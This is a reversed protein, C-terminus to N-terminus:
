PSNIFERTKMNYKINPYIDLWTKYESAFTHESVNMRNILVGRKISGSTVVLNCFIQGRAKTTPENNINM